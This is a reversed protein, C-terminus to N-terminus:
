EEFYGGPYADIEINIGKPVSLKYYACQDKNIQYLKQAQIDRDESTKYPGLLAPDVLGWIFLLYYDKEM